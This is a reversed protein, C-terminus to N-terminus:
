NISILFKIQSKGLDVEYTHNYAIHNSTINWRFWKDHIPFYYNFIGLSDDNDGIRENDEDWGDIELYVFPAGRIEIDAIEFNKAVKDNNYVKVNKHSFGHNISCPAVKGRPYSISRGGTLVMAGSNETRDYSTCLRAYFYYEGALFDSRDKIKIYNTKAYVHMPTTPVEVNSVRIKAKMKNSELYYIGPSLSLTTTKVSGLRDPRGLYDYFAGVASKFIDDMDKNEGSVQYYALEILSEILNSTGASAGSTSLAILGKIGWYTLDRALKGISDDDFANIKFYTIEVDDLYATPAALVPFARKGFVWDDKMLIGQEDIGWWKLMPFTSTQLYINKRLNEEGVVGKFVYYALWEPLQDDRLKGKSKMEQLYTITSDNILDELPPSLFIYNNLYAEGSFFWDGDDKLEVEELTIITYPISNKILSHASYSYYLDNYSPYRLQTNEEGIWLWFRQSQQTFPLEVEVYKEDTDYNLTKIEYTHTYPYTIKYKPTNSSFDLSIVAEAFGDNNQDLYINLPAIKTYVYMSAYSPFYIRLLTPENEEDILLIYDIRNEDREYYTSRYTKSPSIYSWMNSYKSGVATVSNTVKGVFTNKKTLSLFTNKLLPDKLASGISSIDKKNSIDALLDAFEEFKVKITKNKSTAEELKGFLNNFEEKSGIIDEKFNTLSGSLQQSLDEYNITSPKSVNKSENLPESPQYSSTLSAKSPSSTFSFHRNDSTTIKIDTICFGDEIIGECDQNSNNLLYYTHNTPPEQPSVPEFEPIEPDEPIAYMSILELQAQTKNGELYHPTSPLFLSVAYIGLVTVFIAILLTYPKIVM